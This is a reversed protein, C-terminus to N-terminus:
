HPLTLSKPKRGYVLMRYAYSRCSDNFSKFLMRYQAPKDPNYQKFSIETRIAFLTEDVSFYDSPMMQTSCHDNFNAFFDQFAAFRDSEWWQLHTESNDFCLNAVLFPFRNRSITAGFVTHGSCKSINTLGRNNLRMLGSFYM